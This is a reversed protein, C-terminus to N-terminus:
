PCLGDGGPLLQLRLKPQLLPLTAAASTAIPRVIAASAAAASCLPLSLSLSLLLLLPPFRLVHGLAAAATPAAIAAATDTAAPAFAAGAASAVDASLPTLIELPVSDLM